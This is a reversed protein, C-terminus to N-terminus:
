RHGLVVRPLVVAVVVQHEVLSLGVLKLGGELGFCEFNVLGNRFVGMEFDQVVSLVFEHFQVIHAEHYVFRHLLQKVFHVGPVLYGLSVLSPEPLDVLFHFVHVGLDNCQELQRFLYRGVM